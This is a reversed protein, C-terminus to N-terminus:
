VAVAKAVIFDGVNWVAFLQQISEANDLLKISNKFDVSFFSSLIPVPSRRSHFNYYIKM